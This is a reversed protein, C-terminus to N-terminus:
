RRRQLLRVATEHDAPTDLDVWRLGEVDVAGLSGREVLRRMGSSVTRERDGSVQRLAEFIAPTLVFCGADVADWPELNKGIATVRDGRVRVKTADELDLERPDRDVLVRGEEGNALPVTVLKRLAEGAFLHDVMQLFFVSAASSAAALLSMGNPVSTDPNFVFQIQMGTDLAEVASRVRESEYGIVIVAERCGSRKAHELAHAVLPRDAVTVLPKPVGSTHSGLRSGNGAALIITQT